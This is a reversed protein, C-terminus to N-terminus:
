EEESSPSSAPKLVARAVPKLITVKDEEPEESQGVDM